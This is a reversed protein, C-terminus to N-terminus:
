IRLNKHNNISFNLKRLYISILTLPPYINHRNYPRPM